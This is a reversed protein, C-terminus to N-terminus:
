LDKNDINSIMARYEDPTFGYIRKIMKIFGHASSFDLIEAIEQVKLNKKNELLDIGHVAKLGILIEKLQIDYKKKFYSSLHPVSVGFKRALWNVNLCSCDKAKCKFVFELVQEAIDKKKMKIGM